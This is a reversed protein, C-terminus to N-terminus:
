RAAWRSGQLHPWTHRGGCPLAERALAAFLDALDEADPAPHYRDPSGAVAALLAADVDPGLGVADIT